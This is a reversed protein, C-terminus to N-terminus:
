VEKTFVAAGALAAPRAIFFQTSGWIITMQRGDASLTFLGPMGEGNRFFVQNNSDTIKLDIQRLAADPGLALTGRIDLKGGFGYPNAGFMHFAAGVIEITMNAWGAAKLFALDTAQWIGVILDGAMKSSRQKGM